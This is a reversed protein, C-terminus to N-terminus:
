YHGHKSPISMGNKPDSSSKRWFNVDGFFKAEGAVVGYNDGHVEADRNM